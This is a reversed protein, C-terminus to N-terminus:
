TLDHPKNFLRDACSPNFSTTVGMSKEDMADLIPGQTGLALFPVQGRRLYRTGLLNLAGNQLISWSHRIHAIGEEVTLSHRGNKAATRGYDYTAFASALAGDDVYVALYLGQINTEVGQNILGGDDLLSSGRQDESCLLEMQRNIPVVSTPVVILFPIQVARNDPIDAIRNRLELLQRTFAAQGIASEQALKAELLKEVQKDFIFEYYMERTVKCTSHM